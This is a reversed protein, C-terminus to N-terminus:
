MLSQWFKQANLNLFDVWHSKGPWCDRALASGNAERIWISTFNNTTDLKQNSAEPEQILNKDLIYGHGYTPMRNFIVDNEYEISMGSAYVPNTAVAKIHPDTIVVFRRHSDFVQQNMEQHQYEPFKNVDFRFYQNEKTYDLDFWLVDVQFKNETFMQNRKMMTKADIPAWKSFHFGLSYAPPM